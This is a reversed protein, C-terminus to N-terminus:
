GQCVCLVERPVLLVEIVRCCWARKSRKSSCPVVSLFADCVVGVFPLLVIFVSPIECHLCNLRFHLMIVVRDRISGERPLVLLVDM